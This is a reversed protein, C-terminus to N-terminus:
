EVVWKKYVVEGVSYSFGKKTFRCKIRDGEEYQLECEGELYREKALKNLYALEEKGFYGYFKIDDDYEGILWLITDDDIYGHQEDILKLQKISTELM